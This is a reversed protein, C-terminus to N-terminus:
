ENGGTNLHPQDSGSDKIQHQTIVIDTDTVEVWTAWRSEGAAAIRVVNLGEPSLLWGGGGGSSGTQQKQDPKDASWLAM